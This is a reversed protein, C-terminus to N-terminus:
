SWLIKRYPTGAGSYALVNWAPAILSPFTQIDNVADKRLAYPYSGDPNQAAVVEAMVDNARAPDLLRIACVAGFSGEYWPSLVTGLPYGDAPIFTTFGSLGTPGDVIHYLERMRAVSAAADAPRKWRDLLVSGWSMVDLAHQGDPESLGDAYVGGQWFIGTTERWGDIELGRRISDAIRRYEAGGYLEAALDFCWWADINHETSWWPVVFDRELRTGVYRGKGGNMLGRPNLYTTLFRLCRRAAESTRTRFWDRNTPRDALLLAYAVWAVAGIRIYGTDHESLVAQHCAFPFGGDPNQVVLLADVLAVAADREGLQLLAILAVAQDYLFCTDNFGDYYVDGETQGADVAPVNYSRLLGSPMTYEGHIRKTNIDVLSVRGVGPPSLGVSWTGDRSAPVVATPVPPIAAEISRYEIRLDPWASAVAANEEAWVQGLVRRACSKEQEVLRLRIKGEFPRPRRVVFRGPRAAELAWAYEADSESTVLIKYSCVPDASFAGLMGTIISEGGATALTVDTFIASGERYGAAYYRRVDGPRETQRWPHGIPVRNTDAAADKATPYSVLQFSWPGAPPNVMSASFTANASVRTSFQLVGGVSGIVYFSGWNVGGNAFLTGPDAVHQGPTRPDPLLRIGAAGHLGAFPMDVTGSFRVPAGAVFPFHLPGTILVPTYPLAEAEVPMTYRGTWLGSRTRGISLDDPTLSSASYPTRTRAQARLFGGARDVSAQLRAQLDHETLGTDTM